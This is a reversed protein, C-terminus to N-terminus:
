TDDKRNHTSRNSPRPSSASESGPARVIVSTAVEGAHRFTLVLPVTAGAVLPSRLGILMVHMGGPELALIGGAPVTATTIQRMRMIGDATKTEHIEARESAASRLAVVQDTRIGANRITLYVAGVGVGPPTARAWAFELTPRSATQATDAVPEAAVCPALLALLAISAIRNNM